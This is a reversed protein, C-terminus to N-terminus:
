FVKKGKGTTILSKLSEQMLATWAGSCGSYCEIAPVLGIHKFRIQTKNNIESIEFIIKSDTWENKKKVFSLNSETVLWVIRKNPIMEVIKQRSFHVDSMQYTFEDDLKKTGGKIEGQWWGRVNNIAKFVLEPNEDVFFTTSFNAEDFAEEDKTQAKDKGNPQGVGTNILSVLSKQIYTDWANKCIDFCEYQPVLGVQTFRLHTKQDKELIEFVLKNGKWENKDKTFSFYNDQVQWVIKKNPVLEVIKLKCVHVDQYHYDWVANLQDTTGEIEESWWGRVNNIATYVEKASKEVVISTTYDTAIM